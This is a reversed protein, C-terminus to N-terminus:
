GQSTDLGLASSYDDKELETDILYHIRNLGEEPMTGTAPSTISRIEYLVSRLVQIRRDKDSVRIEWTEAVERNGDYERIDREPSGLKNRRVGRYRPM